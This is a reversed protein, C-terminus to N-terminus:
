VAIFIVGILIAVVGIIKKQSIKEKLLKNSIILTWIYTIATLPLVISYELYKLIYINLIAALLYLIGGIYINKDKIIMLISEKSSAKKLFLSAFSGMVTMIVLIIYYKIM